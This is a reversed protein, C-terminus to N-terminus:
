NTAFFFSAVDPLTTLYRFSPQGPKLLADSTTKFEAVRAKPAVGNKAFMGLLANNVTRPKRNKIGVQVAYYPTTRVGTVAVDEM